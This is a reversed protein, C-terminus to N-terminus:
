RLIPESILAHNTRLHNQSPGNNPYILAFFERPPPASNTLRYDESINQLNKQLIRRKILLDHDLLVGRM